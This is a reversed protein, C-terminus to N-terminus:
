QSDQAGAPVSVLACCPWPAPACPLLQRSCGTGACSCDHGTTIEFRGLVASLSSTRCKRGGSSRFTACMLHSGMGTAFVPCQVACLLGQRRSGGGGFMVLESARFASQLLVTNSWQFSDRPIDCIDNVTYRIYLQRRSKFLMVVSWLTHSYAPVTHREHHQPWARQAKSLNFLTM